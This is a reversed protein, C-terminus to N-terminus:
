PKQIAYHDRLVDHTTSHEECLYGDDDTLWDGASQDKCDKIPCM